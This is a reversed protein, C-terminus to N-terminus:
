APHTGAPLSAHSERLLRAAPRPRSARLQRSRSQDACLLARRGEAAPDPRGRYRGHPPRVEPDAVAVCLHRRARGPLQLRSRPPVRVRRAPGRPRGRLLDARSQRCPRAPDRLDAGAQADRHRRPDRARARDQDAGHREDGQADVPRADGPRATTATATATATATGGSSAPEAVANNGKGGNGASAARRDNEM